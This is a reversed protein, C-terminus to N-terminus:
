VYSNITQAIGFHNCLAAYSSNQITFIGNTAGDKEVMPLKNNLQGLRKNLEDKFFINDLPLKFNEEENKLTKDRLLRILMGNIIDSLEYQYKSTISRILSRSEASTIQFLSSIQQESPIAGQFYHKILNLLRFEMMDKGRTFVRQGLIMKNYETLSALGVRSLKQELAAQDACDLIRKLLDIEDNSIDIQFAINLLM